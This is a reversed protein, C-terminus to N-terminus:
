SAAEKAELAAQRQQRMRADRGRDRVRRAEARSRRVGLQIGVLRVSWVPEGDARTYPDVREAAQAVCELPQELIEAVRDLPAAVPESYDVATDWVGLGAGQTAHWRRRGATAMLEEERGARM